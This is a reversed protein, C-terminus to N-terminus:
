KVDRSAISNTRTCSRKGCRKSPSQMCMCLLLSLPMSIYTLQDTSATKGRLRQGTSEIKLTNTTAAEFTVCARLRCVSQCPISQSCEGRPNSTAHAKAKRMEEDIKKTLHEEKKDLMLLHERLSVVAERTENRSSGSGRGTLYSMWGSMITKFKLRSM